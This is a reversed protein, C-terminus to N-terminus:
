QTNSSEALLVTSLRLSISIVMGQCHSGRREARRSPPTIFDTSGDNDKAVRAWSWRQPKLYKAHGGDLVAVDVELVDLVDRVRM